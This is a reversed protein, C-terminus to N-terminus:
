IDVPVEHVVGSSIKKQSMSLSQTRLELSALIEQPAFSTLREAM